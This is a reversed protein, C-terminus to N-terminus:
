MNKGLEVGRQYAAEVVKLISGAGDNKDFMALGAQTTGGPSTVMERLESLSKESEVALHSAGLFTQIVLRRSIEKDFGLREGAEM